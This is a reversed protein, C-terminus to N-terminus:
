GEEIIKHKCKPILYEDLLRDFCDCCLDCAVHDGDHISGYGISYAINFNEQHDWMDFEKGCMDCYTATKIM